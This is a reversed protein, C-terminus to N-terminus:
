HSAPPPTSAAKGDVGPNDGQVSKAWKREGSETGSRSLRQVKRNGPRSVSEAPQVYVAVSGGQERADLSTQVFNKVLYQVLAKQNLFRTYRIRLMRLGRQKCYEDKVRDNVRTSDFFQPKDSYHQVGDAEVILGASPICFDCELLAGKASKLDPFSHHCKIEVDGFAEALASHVRGEFRSDFESAFDVGAEEYLEDITWGRATLTMHSVGALSLVEHASQPTKLERITAILHRRLDADNHKPGLGNANIWFGQCTRSCLRATHRTLAPRFITGCRICPRPSAKLCRPGKERCSPCNRTRGAWGGCLFVTGCNSCPRPAVPKKKREAKTCNQCHRHPPWGLYNQKCFECTKQETKWGRIPHTSKETLPYKM